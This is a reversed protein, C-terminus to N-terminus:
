RRRFFNIIGIFGNIISGALNIFAILLKTISAGFDITKKFINMINILNKVMVYFINGIKVYITFIQTAINSLDEFARQEMSAIINRFKDLTNNIIGMGSTLKGTMNIHETMSSNFQSSFASSKCLNSTDNVNGPAIGLMQLLPGIPSCKLKDWEKDVLNQTSPFVLQKM